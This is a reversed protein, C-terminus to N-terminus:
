TFLKFSIYSYTSLPTPLIYISFNFHFQPQFSALYFSIHHIFLYFDPQQQLQQQPQDEVEDDVEHFRIPDNMMKM